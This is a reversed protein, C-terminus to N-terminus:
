LLVHIGPVLGPMVANANVVNLCVEVSERCTANLLAASLSTRVMRTEIAELAMEIAELDM